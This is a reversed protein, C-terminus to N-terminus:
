IYNSFDRDYLLRIEKIYDIYSFHNGKFFVVKAKPLFKKLARIQYKKVAKDKKFGIVITKPHDIYRYKIYKDYCNLFTKKMNESLKKYDNSGKLFSPIKIKRKKLFKYLRIKVYVKLSFHPKILSPALLILGDAHYKKAYFYGLKGGFSHGIIVLKKNLGQHCNVINNIQYLFDTIKYVENDNKFLNINIINFANSFPKIFGEMYLSSTNWGHILLLLPFRENNFYYKYEIM